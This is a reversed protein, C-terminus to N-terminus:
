ASGYPQVRPSRWNRCPKRGSSAIGVWAPARFMREWSKCHPPSTVVTTGKDLLEHVLDRLEAPLRRVKNVGAM